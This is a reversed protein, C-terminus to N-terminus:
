RADGGEIEDLIAGTLEVRDCIYTRCGLKQLLRLRATQLPRPREGPAKLEVFAIKGHPLIVIRDPVGDLGPSVWKPCIGGRDRVARVLAQEVVKERM